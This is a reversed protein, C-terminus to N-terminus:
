VPFKQKWKNIWICWLTFGYKNDAKSRKTSSKLKQSQRLPNQYWKQWCTRGYDDQHNLHTLENKNTKRQQENKM